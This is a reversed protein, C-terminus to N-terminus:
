KTRKEGWAPARWTLSARVGNSFARDASDLVQTRLKYAVRFDWDKLFNWSVGPEISFFDREDTDEDDASNQNIYATTLDFSILPTAKYNASLRLSNREELRGNSSPSLTRDFSGSLGGREETYRVTAGAEFGVGTEDNTSTVGSVNVEESTSRYNAGGRFSVSTQETFDHTWTVDGTFVDSELDLGSTREFRTYRGSFSVTDKETARLSLFPGATLSIFDELSSTDVTSRTASGRLGVSALQTAAYSVSAGGSLTLRRADTFDRGTDDDETRRTTTRGINANLSFQTRPLAHQLAATAFQDFSDLDDDNPFVAYELRGNFLLTTRPTHGEIQIAPRTTLGWVTEPDDPDLGDNDDFEFLQSISPAVYWDAAAATGFSAALLFLGTVGGRVASATLDKVVPAVGRHSQIEPVRM